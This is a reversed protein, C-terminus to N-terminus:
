YPNSQALETNSGTTPKKYRYGSYKNGAAMNKTEWYTMKFKNEHTFSGM